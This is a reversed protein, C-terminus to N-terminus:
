KSHSLDSPCAMSVSEPHIQVGSQIRNLTAPGIGKIAKLDSLNKYLGNDNRHTVIANATVPGIGSIAELSAASHHNLELPLGWAYAYPHGFKCPEGPKLVMGPELLCDYKTEPDIKSRCTGKSVLITEAPSSEHQFWVPMGTLDAHSPTIGSFLLLGFGMLAFTLRHIHDM